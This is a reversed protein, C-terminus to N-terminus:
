TDMQEPEEEICDMGEDVGTLLTSRSLAKRRQVAAEGTWGVGGGGSGGGGGGGGEGDCAVAATSCDKEWGFSHLSRQAGGTACIGEEEDEVGALASAVLKAGTRSSSESWDTDSGGAFMSENNSGRRSGGYSSGGGGWGEDGDGVGDDRCNMSITMTNNSGYIAATAKSLSAASKNTM